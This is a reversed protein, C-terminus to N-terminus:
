AAKKKAVNGGGEVMLTVTQVPLAVLDTAQGTTNKVFRYAAAYFGPPVPVVLDLSGSAFLKFAAHVYGDPNPKRNRGPLKQLLVECTVGLQSAGSATLTIQGTGATATLTITDGTFDTAPPTVPLTGTPTLQLFKVALEVYASIGSLPYTEGTVPNHRVQGAGYANWADAQASTLGEFTKAAKSLYGRVARQALSKPNRVGAKVRATPGSKANMFVVTGIKGRVANVLASYAINAM